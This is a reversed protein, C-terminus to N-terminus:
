VTKLVCQLALNVKQADNLANDLCIFTTQDDLPLADVTEIAIAEDLCLYFSPPPGQPAEQDTDEDEPREVVEDTIRYVTNSPLALLEIQSNLSYGEKLLVEYIVHQRDAGDKLGEDFYSLQQELDEAEAPSEWRRFTSPALTFVKFGLDQLDADVGADEDDLDLSLQPDHGDDAAAQVREIVRRVRRRGMDAITDLNPEPEPLPEPYQVMVFRRNGGDELNQALVAHATSASGSFFDVVIDETDVDTGIQLMRQILRPPKLTNLVNETHQFDVHALLEQKAEQTHGVDEYMWLTQPVIGQKVESLFRKLAPMNSGESGWWIRDDQDLETFTKQNVTWYRGRPPEFQKGTPSTVQYQGASYYNRATLDSAKWPGRPDDDLNEYRANAEETRPLLNPRWIEKNRAYVVVYDHDESFYKATNKPAYVKQWIVTTIFNEEGFIENMLMRLHHVENDDISVFIVGDERLLQRALFLRPYMMTLWDSHYRGRTEPNSRLVNGEADVQGTKELYARLPESYDDRYIFDNGTNYPPDIYIMKVKGVYSKYLLKLVELNEGEIFLHRTEDWNVSAVPVPQLSAASPEQLARFAEAKGAWTFSYGDGEALAEASGLTARLRDYDVQGESVVEPFLAKLKAVQEAALDPTTKTVREPDSQTM